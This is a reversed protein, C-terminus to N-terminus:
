LPNTTVGEEIRIKELIRNTIKRVTEDSKNIYLSIERITLPKDYEFGYKMSFVIKELDNFNDCLSKWYFKDNNRANNSLLVDLYKLTCDKNTVSDISDYISNLKYSFLKKLIHYSYLSINISDAIEQDSINKKNYSLKVAQNMKKIDHHKVIISNKSHTSICYLLRSRIYIDAYSIFKSSGDYNEAAQLMGQMGQALFTSYPIKKTYKNMKKFENVKFKLYGINSHILIQKSYNHAFLYLFLDKESFNTIKSFEKETPFRGIKKKLSCRLTKLRKGFICFKSLTLEEERNLLRSKYPKVYNFNYANTKSIHIFDIIIFFTFIHFCIKIISEMLAKICCAKLYTIM